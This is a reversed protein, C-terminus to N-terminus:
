KELESELERIRERLIETYAIKDAYEEKTAVGMAIKTGIYDYTALEQKLNEIQEEITSKNEKQKLENLKNEDLILSGNIFQYCSLHKLDYNSLDLEINDNKTHAISLIYNNTDLNLTYKM